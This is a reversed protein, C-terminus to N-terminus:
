AACPMVEDLQASAARIHELADEHHGHSVAEFASDIHQSTKILRVRCGQERALRNVESLKMQPNLQVTNM